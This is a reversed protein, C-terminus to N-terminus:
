SQKKKKIAAGELNKNLKRLETLIDALLVPTKYKYFDGALEENVAKQLRDMVFKPILNM